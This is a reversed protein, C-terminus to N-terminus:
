HGAGGRAHARARNRATRYRTIGRICARPECIGNHRCRRPSSPGAFLGPLRWSAGIRQNRRSEIGDAGGPALRMWAAALPLAEYIWLTPMMLTGAWRVDAGMM